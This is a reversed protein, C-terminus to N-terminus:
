ATGVIAKIELTSGTATGTGKSSIKVYRAKMPLAFWLNATANLQLTYAEVVSVGSSAANVWPLQYYTTNDTSYEIKIEATTLSGITFSIALILENGLQLQTTVGTDLGIVTGAVYSGTLIASPRITQVVYDLTQM